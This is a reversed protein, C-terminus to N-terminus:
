VHARGIQSFETDGKMLDSSKGTEVINGSQMVIVQDFQDALSPSELAWLLGKGKMFGRIAGVFRSRANFDFAGLAEDVVLLDPNKLLGRAFALKQRQIQSLRNGAPGVNFELGLSIIFARLEVAQIAADITEEIAKQVAPKGYPVTGFLM